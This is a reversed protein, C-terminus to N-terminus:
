PEDHTGEKGAPPAALQHAVVRSLTRLTRQRQDDTLALWLRGLPPCAKPETRRPPSLNAHHDDCSPGGQQSKIRREEFWKVLSLLAALGIIASKWPPFGVGNKSIFNEAKGPFEALDTIMELTLKGRLGEKPEKSKMQVYTAAVASGIREVATKGIMVWSLRDGGRTKDATTSVIM